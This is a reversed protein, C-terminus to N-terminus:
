CSNMMDLMSTHEIHKNHEDHHDQEGEEETINIQKDHERLLEDHENHVDHDDNVMNM